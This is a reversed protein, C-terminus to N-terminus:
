EADQAIRTIEDEGILGTSAQVTEGEKVESLQGRSELAM